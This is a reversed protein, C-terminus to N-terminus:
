YKFEFDIVREKKEANKDMGVGVSFGIAMGIPLGIGLLAMNDNMLGFTTGLPVGFVSLGLVMWLQRYYNRAVLKCDKELTRLIKQICNRFSSKKTKPLEQLTVLQEKIKSITTDPLDKKNLALLLNNLTIVEKEFNSYQKSDLLKFTM